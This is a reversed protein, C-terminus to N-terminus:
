LNRRAKEWMVSQNGRVYRALGFYLSTNMFVFYYPFNLFRTKSGSRSLMWGFFALIYFVIQLWFLLHYIFQDTGLIIIGNLLLIMPLLFPCVAWRLVRHSIYQFSLAPYKFINFLAKLRVMSQFAGASIRVKRKQEEKMNASPNEMAYAKSEYVVRYGKQCIRLSIIFDDLLTDPEVEEFLDTRFSFLEGAAGVVTYFDSDLQKLFSEYKWYLGEGAVASNEQDKNIVKKEGAVGGVKPDAYHRVIEKLAEKNLLTNADCFVVFPTKVAKMARNMAAIKGRREDTHMLIFQPYNSVLGPTNDTSGDTVFIIELRGPPYDLLLTNQIKNEIFDEENFAPIVLTLMPYDNVHQTTGPKKHFLPRIKLILWLLCGYGIYTYFVILLLLWFLLETLAM